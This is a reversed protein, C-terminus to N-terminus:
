RPHRYLYLKILSVTEVCNKEKKNKISHFLCRVFFVKERSIMQLRMYVFSCILFIVNMSIRINLLNEVACGVIGFVYGQRNRKNRVM